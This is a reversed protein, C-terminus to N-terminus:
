CEGLLRGTGLYVSLMVGVGGWGGEGCGVGGRKREDWCDAKLERGPSGALKGPGPCGKEGGEGWGVGGAQQTHAPSISHVPRRLFSGQCVGWALVQLVWGLNRLGRSVVAAATV